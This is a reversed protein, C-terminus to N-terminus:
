RAIRSGAFQVEVRRNRSRGESTANSAAPQSEGFGETVIKDAPVGEKVLFAKVAEARRLSLAMNYNEPGTSCTHGEIRIQEITAGKAQSLLSRLAAQGEPKVASQDFDFFSDAKYTVNQPAPVVMPISAPAPSPTTPAATAPAPAAPPQAPAAAPAPPKALSPDCEETALSQTFYGTTVCFGFGSRVASGSADRVYGSGPPQALVQGSTFFAILFPVVTKVSTLI